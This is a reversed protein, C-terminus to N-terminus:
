AASRETTTGTNRFDRDAASNAARCADCATEGLRRHRQYGGRTGCEPPGPPLTLQQEYADSAAQCAPDIDEGVLLHRYYAKTTGCENATARRHRAEARVQVNRENHARRCPDCPQEGNRRHRDYAADTGCPALQRGSKGQAARTSTDAAHRQAPTLGGRIGHRSVKGLGQEETLAAQRCLMLVPCLLCATIADRTTAKDSPEPFWLDDDVARACVGDFRWNETRDLTDPAAHSTTAYHRILM